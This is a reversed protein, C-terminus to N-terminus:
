YNKATVPQASLYTGFIALIAGGYVLRNLQEGTLLASWIFTFFTQLYLIGAAAVPSGRRIIAQIIFYFLVTGVIAVYFLAGFAPWTVASIDPLLRGTEFPLAITLVVLTVLSMVLTQEQPSFEQRVGKSLVMYSTFSFVGLLILGVGIFSDNALSMSFQPGHIVTLLAGALGLLVGVTRKLGIKEELFMISALYVFIPALLYLVQAIAPSILRVGFAFLTVNGVNGLSVLALRLWGRRQFITPRGRYFSFPILILSSLFFRLFTFSLPPIDNIGLKILVPVAGNTFAAALVLM